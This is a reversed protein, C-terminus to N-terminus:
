GFYNQERKCWETIIGGRQATLIHERDCRFLEKDSRKDDLAPIWGTRSSGRSLRCGTQTAKTVWSEPGPTAVGLPCNRLRVGEKTPLPCHSPGAKVGSVLEQVFHVWGALEKTGRLRLVSKGM